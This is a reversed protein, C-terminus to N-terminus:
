SQRRSYGLVETLQPQSRYTGSKLLRPIKLRNELPSSRLHRERELLEEPSEAIMEPYNNIWWRCGYTDIRINAELFSAM